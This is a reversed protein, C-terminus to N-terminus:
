SNVSDLGQGIDGPESRRAQIWLRDAAVSAFLDHCTPM